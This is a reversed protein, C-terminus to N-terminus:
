GGFSELETAGGEKKDEDKQSDEKWEDGSEEEESKIIEISDEEQKKEAIPAGGANPELFVAVPAEPKNKKSVVKYQDGKAKADEFWKGKVFIYDKGDMTMNVYGGEEVALSEIM